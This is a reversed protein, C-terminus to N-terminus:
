GGAQKGVTDAVYAGRRGMPQEPGITTDVMTQHEVEAALQAGLLLIYASIYFWFMLAIITGLSGYVVTYDAINSLYWSLLTSAILWGIAVTTAGVLIWRWKAARRSPGIRYIAASGFTVTLFLIPASVRRGGYDLISVGEAGMMLPMLVIFGVMVLGALLGTITVGFSRLYLAITGRKEIEGYAINMAGFLAIVANNMSWLSIGISAIFAFTLGNEHLHRVRSIENSMWDLAQDPLYGRLFSVHSALTTPDTFISYSTVVAIMAPILALFVYFTVGATILGLNDISVREIMRVVIDWWGRWGIEM